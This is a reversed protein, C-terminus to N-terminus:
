GSATLVQSAFFLISLNILTKFPVGDFRLLHTRLTADVVRGDALSQSKRETFAEPSYVNIALDIHNLNANEFQTGINNDSDLHICKAVYCGNCVPYDNIEELMMSLNGSNNRKAHVELSRIGRFKYEWFKLREAESMKTGPVVEPEQLIYHGGTSEGKFLHLNDIWKPNVPRLAEHEFYMPPRKESCYYADLRIFKKEFPLQSRTFQLVEERLFSNPQYFCGNYECNCGIKDWNLINFDILENDSRVHEYLNNNRFIPHDERYREMSQLFRIAQVKEWVEIYISTLLIKKDSDADLSEIARCRIMNTQKRENETILQKKVEVMQLFLNLMNQDLNYPEIPSRIENCKYDNVVRNAIIEIEKIYTELDM